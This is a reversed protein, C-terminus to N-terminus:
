QYANSVLWDEVELLDIFRVSLPYSIPETCLADVLKVLTSLHKLSGIEKSLQVLCEGSIIYDIISAYSANDIKRYKSDRASYLRKKAEYRVALKEISEALHGPSQNKYAEALFKGTNPPEDSFAWVTYDAPNPYSTSKLYDKVERRQDKWASLFDAGSCDFM